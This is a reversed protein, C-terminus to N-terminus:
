FRFYLFPNYTGNVLYAVSLLLVALVYVSELIATGMGDKKTLAGAIRAPLSTAGVLMVLLLLANSVLLYLSEDSVVGGAGIGALAKVYARHGSIDEWAFLLWGFYIVILAYVHSLWVPLRKLLKLLWTKEMILFFCFYLGWLTFNVTAGHWLGTLFWVIFINVYTRGAGRRSGGLPVYVYEKFWSGLSIHWRRWFETISKSEYPYNFNEPIMFGFMAMLGIAMDSYGSFDFYIQLMFALIGLWAMLMTLEGAATDTVTQFIVGAQNALLVKKGLGCCFRLVGYRIQLLDCRRERLQVAIDRFRVIPGAILQPFLSIYTGFNVPNKEAQARGMYVDITYSMSQFTYFSIGIPLAYRGAYKFVALLSLNIVVSLVVFIRAVGRRGREVFYGALGGNVYDVVTSFFMLWIYVPEGWAYFVLSFLFLVSNKWFNKLCGPVIYYILLVCPLFRVLVLLSSFVM